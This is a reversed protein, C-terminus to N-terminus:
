WAIRLGLPEWITNKNHCRSAVGQGTFSFGESCLYGFLWTALDHALSHLAAVM